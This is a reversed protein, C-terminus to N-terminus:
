REIKYILDVSKEEGSVAEIRLEDTLQYSVGFSFAQEFVGIMYRVLLKPTIYKGVWLESQDIGKDSKVELEDVRFFHSISSTMDESSDGGLGGAASLLMLAGANSADQGTKGTLLMMMAQSDSQSPVSFVKATPRQLTGGVELGVSVKESGEVERSARIDLGPNEYDGQFILRGREITLTQNYAKYSGQKVSVYGTTLLQRQVDKFLNLKGILQSDLGFGKFRVDDGLALNINTYLSPGTAVAPDAFKDDVIVVDSSVKTASQPLTKINARAWPILADGTLRIAKHTANLAIDPSLTAKLQPLSVINFDNGKLTGILQWQDNGFNTLAAVVNVKGKGSQLQSVLNINGAQTSNLQLEMNSVDVGLKPLNAGGNHLEVDGLIFPKAFSGGVSLDARLEGKVDNAFVLLTELPALNPFLARVNSKNIKQERLNLQADANLTGYGLWDMTADAKLEGKAITATVGLNRWPYIETRGGPFQYRLEAARAKVQLHAVLDDLTFTQTALYLSGDMVGAFYVEPKFLAYFQRLPVADILLQSRLGKELSWKGSLCLQPMPLKEIKSAPLTDASVLWDYQQRAPSQQRLWPPEIKEDQAVGVNEIVATLNSRTTLCVNDVDVSHATVHVKQSSTLWWRPVNKIKIALQTFEAIWNKDAYQGAMSFDAKGYRSSKIVAKLTHEKISGM